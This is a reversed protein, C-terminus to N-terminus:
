LAELGPGGARARWGRFSATTLAATVYPSFQPASAVGQEMGRPQQQPEDEKAEM